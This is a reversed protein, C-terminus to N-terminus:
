KNVPDLDRQLYRAEMDENKCYEKLLNMIPTDFEEPTIDKELMWYFLDWDNSPKNILNDFEELQNDDFEKLFRAAFNGLLLGNESIGRKRSQYVLRARKVEVNEDDRKEYIPIPPGMDPFDIPGNAVCRHGIKSINLINKTLSRSCHRFM